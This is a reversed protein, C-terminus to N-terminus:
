SDADANEKGDMKAGCYYCYRQEEDFTGTFFMEHGCNSCYYWQDKTVWEGEKPMLETIRKETAELADAADIVLAAECWPERDYYDCPLCREEVGGGKGCHRLAKILEANTM